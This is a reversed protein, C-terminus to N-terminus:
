VLLAVHLQIVQSPHKFNFRLCWSSPSSSLLELTSVHFLLM